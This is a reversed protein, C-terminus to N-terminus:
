INFNFMFKEKLKNQLNKEFINHVENPVKTYRVFETM